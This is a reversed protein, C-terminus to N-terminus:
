SDSPSQLNRILKGLTKAIEEVESQKPSLQFLRSGDRPDYVWCTAVAAECGWEVQTSIGFVPIKGTKRTVDGSDNRRIEEVSIAEGTSSLRYEIDAPRDLHAVAQDKRWGAVGLMSNLHKVLADRDSDALYLKRLTGVQEDSAPKIEAVKTQEGNRPVKAQEKRSREVGTILKLASQYHSGESGAKDVYAELSAQAENFHSSQLMVRGRFYYYDTPKEAELQHLRNLYESAESWSEASVAEEIALMLRRAEHEPALAAAQGALLLSAIILGQALQRGKLRWALLCNNGFWATM